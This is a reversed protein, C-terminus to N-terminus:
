TKGCACEVYDALDARVDGYNEVPEVWGPM